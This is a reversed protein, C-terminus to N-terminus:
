TALTSGSLAPHMLPLALIKLMEQGMLGNHNM